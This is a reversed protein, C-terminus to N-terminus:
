KEPRDCTARAPEGRLAPYRRRLPYRTGEDDLSPPYHPLRCQKIQVIAQMTAVLRSQVRLALKLKEGQYPDRRYAYVSDVLAYFMASLTEVHAALVEVSRGSRGETLAAVQAELELLLGRDFPMGAPGSLQLVASGATEAPGRMGQALEQRMEAASTIRALEQTWAVVARPPQTPPRLM